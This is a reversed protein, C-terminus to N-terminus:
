KNEKKDEEDDKFIVYILGIIVLIILIIIITKSSNKEEKEEKNAKEKNVKITYTRESGDEATVKITVTNLGEKFNQNGSVEYSANEDNLVIDLDLSKVSSKVKLSYELTNPDFSIDYGKIKLSKILNDSSLAVTRAVVSSVVPMVVANESSTTQENNVLSNTGKSDEVDGGKADEYIMVTTSVSSDLNVAVGNSALINDISISAEGPKLTKFTLTMFLGNSHYEDLLYAFHDDESVDGFGDTVEVKTLELLDKNYSIDGEIGTLKDKDFENIYYKVVLEDGNYVEKKSVLSNQLNDNAVVDNDWKGTFFVPNTADLINYIRNEKAGLINDMIFLSDHIDVVGDQNYDGIVHIPYSIEFQDTQIFLRTGDAILHVGDELSTSYGTVNYADMLNDWDFEALFPEEYIGEFSGLVVLTGNELSVNQPLYNAIISDNSGVYHILIEVKESTDPITYSFQYDGYLKDSFDIDENYTQNSYEYSVHIMLDDVDGTLTYENGSNGNITVKVEEVPDVVGEDTNDEQNLSYSSVDTNKELVSNEELADSKELVNEDQEETDKVEDNTEMTTENAEILEDALVEIPFSLQSFSFMLILLIKGIKEITKIKGKM